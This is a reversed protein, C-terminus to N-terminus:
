TGPLPLADRLRVVFRCGPLGRKFVLYTNKDPETKQAETTFSGGPVMVPLGAEDLVDNEYGYYSVASSPNEVRTAGQAVVAQQLEASLVDPPAYGTAKTNAQAVNTLSPGSPPSAAGVTAVVAAACLIGFAVPIIRNM